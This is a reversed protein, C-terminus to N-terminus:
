VMSLGGIVANIVSVSDTLSNTPCKATMHVHIDLIAYKSMYLQFLLAFYECIILFYKNSFLIWSLQVRYCIRLCQDLMVCM